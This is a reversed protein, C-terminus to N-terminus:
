NTFNLKKKQNQQDKSENYFENYHDKDIDKMLFDKYTKKIVKKLNVASM